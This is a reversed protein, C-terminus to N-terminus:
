RHYKSSKRQVKKYKVSFDAKETLFISSKSIKKIRILNVLQAISYIPIYYLSHGHVLCHSFSPFFGKKRSKGRKGDLDLSPTTLLLFLIFLLNDQM